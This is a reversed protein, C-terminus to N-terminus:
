HHCLSLLLAMEGAGDVENHGLVLGSKPRRRSTRAEPLRPAAIAPATRPSRCARRSRSVHHPDLVSLRGPRAPQRLSRSSGFRCVAAREVPRPRSPPRTRWAGADATATPAWAGAATEPLSPPSSPQRAVAGASHLRRRDLRQRAGLGGGRGDLSATARLQSAWCCRLKKKSK